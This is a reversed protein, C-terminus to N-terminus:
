RVNGLVPGLVCGAENWPQSWRSPQRDAIQVQSSLAAQPRKPNPTSSRTPRQEAARTISETVFDLFRAINELRAAPPPRPAPGLVTVGQRATEIVQDNARASAIM